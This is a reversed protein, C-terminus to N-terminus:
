RSYTGSIFKELDNIKHLQDDIVWRVVDGIVIPDIHTGQKLRGALGCTLTGGSTEILYSNNTKRIVVGCHNTQACDSSQADSLKMYSKM